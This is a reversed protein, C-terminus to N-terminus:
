RLRRLFGTAQRVESLSREWTVGVVTLVVGILGIVLWQPLTVAHTVERLALPAGLVAGVVLPASWRLGVGAVVVVLCAVGLLLARLSVPEVLAVFFSPVLALTLGPALAPVSRVSPNRMRLVGVLLLVLALPLTYAEVTEVGVEALRVWQALVMLGLGVWGLWRRHANTLASLHVLVGSLTLDVALWTQAHEADTVCVMVTAFMTLAVPIEREPRAGLVAWAGVVVLMPLARWPTELGLLDLTTWLFTGAVPALLVDGVLRLMRQGLLAVLAAALTLLGTTVATLVQSQTSVLLGGVALVGALALATHRVLGETVLSAGACAAAAVLLLAVMVGLGVGYATPVALVSAVTLMVIPLAVRTIPVDSGLNVAVWLALLLMGVVLPVLAPWLGAFDARPLTSGVEQSWGDSFLLSPLTGNVFITATVLLGCAAVGAPAAVIARWTRALLHTTVAGATVLGSAVLVLTNLSEDFAPLTLLLALVAIAAAAAVVRAPLPLSRAFGAVGGAMIAALVTPWPTFDTWVNAFTLPVDIWIMGLVSLTVWGLVVAVTVVITAVPLQLRRAAVLGAVLLVIWTVTALAELHGNPSGFPFVAEVLGATGFCFGFAGIVQTSVLSGTPSRRLLAAVGIGALALAGGLVAQFGADDVFGLWGSSRAGFVDLALLGLSVTAFAEAGARLDRRALLVSGLGAGITLLILVVTRGGVGLLSWAVALFVVAAVLLCLAGLGLLIKPVSAASLGSRNATPWDPRRVDHAGPAPFPTLDPPLLSGPTSAPASPAPVPVAHQARDPATRAATANASLAALQTVLGDADTLTRFLSQAVPGTLQAGCHSCAPSGAPMTTRCVPCTAPDAYRFM